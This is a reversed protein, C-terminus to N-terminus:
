DDESDMDEDDDLSEMAEKIFPSAQLFTSTLLIYAVNISRPSLAFSVKVDLNLATTFARLAEGKEGLGKWCKGLLFWVNAEDPALDRLVLLEQLALEFQRMHMLVRSKKFRALASQPALELARSYCDLANPKKRLKEFIVGICVMLTANSPNLQAAIRYHREADELKGMRELSRGLGYWGAYSRKEATVSKRFSSLAADFEENAIFEHGMLTWAYAFSEELQTARKFAAIAQDHERALSFSNGIACWTEPSDFAQERLSHCLFALPAEKKLHWLVTSYVEMDEIRAPQLKLLKIFYNESQRYDSAEYYAKALQAIVWPTEHQASPLLKFAETATALDYRSAAYSGIALQKFSKLLSMIAEQEALVNAPPATSIRQTTTNTPATSIPPKEGNRSPARRLREREKEKEKEKDAPDPPMIKRNGSVVRGVTGTTRGKAGTATRAPRSERENRTTVIPASETTTRTSRTTPAQGFLRNSRRPAASDPAATSSQSAHGSITRKHGGSTKRTGAEAAAVGDQPDSTTSPQGRLAPHRSRDSPELPQGPRARRLPALPQQEQVVGAEEGAYGGMAADDEFSTGNSNATPTDWESLPAKLGHLATRSRAKPLAFMPAGQEGATRANFPDGSPTLVNAHNFNNQQALANSTQRPQDAYVEAASSSKPTAVMEATPKFMKDMDMDAGIKCLGEFSEWIFPNATHAEVYCDGAKKSDGHARWLRALLTQVAAADPIHRRSTESHKNWNSRGQWLTKAKELATTGELNKGLELCAQAFIYACGLHRGGSGYRHAAEYASKPKRQRLSTLALLHSSDPNRPELAYLRGALFSANDLLENDIHYFILQRLQSAAVGSAPSMGSHTNTNITALARDYSSFTITKVAL